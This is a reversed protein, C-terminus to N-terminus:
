RIGRLGSVGAAAVLRAINSFAEAKQRERLRPPQCKPQRDKAQAAGPLVALLLMRGHWHSPASWSPRSTMDGERIGRHYSEPLIMDLPDPHVGLPIISTKL